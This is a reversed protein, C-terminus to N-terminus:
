VHFTKLIPGGNLWLVLPKSAPDEVAEFFWYFLARGPDDDVTVYGSYHAFSVNFSQGPLRLVRDKEQREFKSAGGVELSSALLLLAILFPLSSEAKEMREM